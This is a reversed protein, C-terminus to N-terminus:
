DHGDYAFFVGKPLSKQHHVITSEFWRGERHLRTARVLQALRGIAKRGMLFAINSNM